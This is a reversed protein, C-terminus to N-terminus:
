WCSEVTGASAGRAGSQNISLSGCSPDNGPAATLTFTRAATSITFSYFNQLDNVCQLAPVATVSAYSMNATYTRELVQAQEILCAGAATRRAKILYQQYGPIAVAALIGIIAVVIMLEILTFGNNNTILKL